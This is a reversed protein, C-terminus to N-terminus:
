VSLEAIIAEPDDVSVILERLRVPVGSARARAPPEIEIAVLPGAAGNVLWRGGWGHVGVSLSANRARHVSRISRRPVDARFGWSMRVSVRDPALELYSRRPTLGLVCLLPKSLGFRIPIRM